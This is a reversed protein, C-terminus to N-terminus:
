NLIRFTEVIADVESLDGLSVGWLTYNLKGNADPIRRIVADGPGFGRISETCHHETGENGSVVIDTEVKDPSGICWDGQFNVFVFLAADGKTLEINQVCFGDSGCNTAEATLKWDPPFDIGYGQEFNTYTNWNEPRPAAPGATATVSPEGASVTVAAAPTGPTSAASSDVSDDPWALAGIAIGALLGVALAAAAVLRWRSQM